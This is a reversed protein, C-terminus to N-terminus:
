GQLAAALEEQWPPNAGARSVTIAAATTGRHTIEAIEQTSLSGLAAVADGGTRRAAILLVADLASAMLTDGAAVTDVAAVKPAPTTLVPEAGYYAEVGASGLSLLVLKPGGAARAWKRVVDRPDRDPYLWEVDEDSVKILHARTVLAEVQAATRPKDADPILAPRMNPDYSILTTPPATTAIDLVREGGPLLTASISGIHLAAPYHLETEPLQWTLDFDYTAAGTADLTARAVSTREATFSAPHVTVGSEGLWELVLKGYPDTALHTLLTAQHGLRALALAVNAPSGGPLEDAPRGPRAIVDVLAEGVVLVQQQSM